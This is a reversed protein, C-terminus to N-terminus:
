LALSSGPRAFYAEESKLDYVLRDNYIIISLTEADKGLVSKVTVEAKATVIASPTGPLKFPKSAFLRWALAQAAAGTLVETGASARMLGYREIRIESVDSPSVAMLKGSARISFSDTNELAVVSHPPPGVPTPAQTPTATVWVAGAELWISQGNTLVIGNSARVACNVAKAIIFLLDAGDQGQGTDCAWITMQIYNRSKLSQFQPLWDSQNWIFVYLGPGYPLQQGAGTEFFGVNGHAGINCARENTNGLLNSALVTSTAHRLPNWFVAADKNLTGDDPGSSITNREGIGFPSVRAVDFIRPDAEPATKKAM